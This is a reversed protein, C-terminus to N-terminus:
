SSDQRFVLGEICDLLTGVAYILQVSYIDLTSSAPSGLSRLFDPWPSLSSGPFRCWMTNQQFTGRLCSFSSMYIFNFIIVSQFLLNFVAIWGYKVHIPIIKIVHCLFGTAGRGCWWLIINDWLARRQDLKFSKSLAALSDHLYFYLVFSVFIWNVCQYLTLCCVCM